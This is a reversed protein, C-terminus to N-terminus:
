DSMILLRLMNLAALSSRYINHLRNRGFRFVRCDAVGPGSVAIWVTGVPKEESGGGPGAIGTTAIGYDSQLKQRVEAAMKEAVEHSVAGKEALLAESIGLESTKIENAYAILSGRFYASSGPVSTILRAISGGTCSEATALSANKELLLKGLVEQLSQDDEGFIFEPIYKYLAAAQEELQKRLAHQVAGRGTLRLKIVGTKPLYALKINAPLQREFPELIEALRAEYSGFTMISKHEIAPTKFHERIRPMVEAEMLNEMEYPVGPMSVLVKGDKEFWLGPASGLKNRLPLAAAPVEAQLRNNENLPLSRHALYEKIGELVEENLVMECGFLKALTQKTIDDSTPGLGGTMLVLKSYKWAETISQLIHEETDSISTIQRVEIGSENLIRGMWASNTDVTQGILIEDGITIIDAKM